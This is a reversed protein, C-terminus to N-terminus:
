TILIGVGGASMWATINSHDDDYLIDMPNCVVHKFGKATAMMPIDTGLYKDVWLRKGNYAREHEIPLATLVIRQCNAHKDWLDIGKRIIPLNEWMEPYYYNAFQWFAERSDIPYKNDYSIYQADLKMQKVYGDFNALVGDLDFYVKSSM